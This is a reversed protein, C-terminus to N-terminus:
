KDFVWVSCIVVAGTFTNCKIRQTAKCKKQNKRWVPQSYGDDTASLVPRFSPAEWQGSLPIDTLCVVCLFVTAEQLYQRPEELTRLIKRNVFIQDGADVYLTSNSNDVAYRRSKSM